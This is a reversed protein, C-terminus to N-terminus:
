LRRLEVRHLSAGVPRGVAVDRVGLDAGMETARHAEVLLLELEEHARAVLRHEVHAVARERDEARGGAGERLKRDVEVRRPEEPGAPAEVLRDARPEPLTRCDAVPLRGACSRRRSSAHGSPRPAHSPTWPSPAMATLSPAGRVRRSACAASPGYPRTWCAILSSSSRIPIALPPRTRSSLIKGSWQDKM